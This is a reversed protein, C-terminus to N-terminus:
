MYHPKGYHPSMSPCGGVIRHNKKFVGEEGEMLVSTGGHCEGWKFIFAGLQFAVGVGMSSYGRELFCNRSFFALFNSITMLVQTEILCYQFFTGFIIKESPANLIKYCFYFLKNSFM